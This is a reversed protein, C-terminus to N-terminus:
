NRKFLNKLKKGLELKKREGKGKECRWKDFTGMITDKTYQSCDKKTEALSSSNYLTLVLILPLFKLIKM